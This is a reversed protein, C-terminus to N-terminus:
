SLIIPMEILQKQTFKNSKLTQLIKLAIAQSIKLWARQEKRLKINELTKIDQSSVLNLFKEKNTM